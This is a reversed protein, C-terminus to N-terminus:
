PLYRALAFHTRNGAFSNGGVLLKGSPEIGLVLAYTQGGPRFRTRVIGANGFSPDLRGDPMFRALAFDVEFGSQTIRYSQGAAVLKGDAQIAVANGTVTATTVDLSVVGGIGFEGDLVGATTYRAIMPVTARPHEATGVVVIKGDPQLAVGRITEYDVGLYRLDTIVVGRQGFSRDLRGDALLRVLAFDTDGGYDRTAGAAVIRGNDQLALSLVYDDQNRRLDVLVRGQEGFTPDLTGNRQYRALAFDEIVNANSEGALVVKGDQQLGLASASDASLRGRFDTRVMGGQGFSRDLQGNHTLRALAFDDSSGSGSTSGGVVIRHGRTVVLGAPFLYTGTGSLDIRVSGGDGFSHDLGGDHLYRAIVSDAVSGNESAGLALIRSRDIALGWLYDDTGIRTVVMGGDGFTPDLDGPAAWAAEIALGLFLAVVALWLKSRPIGKLKMDSGGLITPLPPQSTFWM